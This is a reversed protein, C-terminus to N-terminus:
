GGKEKTTKIAGARDNAPGHWLAWMQLCAKDCFVLKRSWLYGDWGTFCGMIGVWHCQVCEEDLTSTSM